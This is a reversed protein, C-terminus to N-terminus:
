TARDRCKKLKVVLAFALANMVNASAGEKM